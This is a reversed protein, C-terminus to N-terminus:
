SYSTPAVRFDDFQGTAARWQVQVSKVWAAPPGERLDALLESLAESSGEAMVEVDGNALNRVWGTLRRQTARRIVFFRFGVAQVRGTIVANLQVDEPM